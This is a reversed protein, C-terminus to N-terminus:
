LSTHPAPSYAPGKKSLRVVVNAIRGKDVCVDREGCVTYPKKKVHWELAEANLDIEYKPKTLFWFCHSGTPVLLVRVPTRTYRIRSYVPIRGDARPPFPILQPPLAMPDM